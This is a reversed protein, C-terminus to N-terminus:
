DSFNKRRNTTKAAPPKEAAPTEADTACPNQAIWAEAEERLRFPGVHHKLGDVGNVEVIFEGAPAPTRSRGRANM